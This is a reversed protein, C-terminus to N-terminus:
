EHVTPECLLDNLMKAKRRLVADGEDTSQGMRTEINKLIERLHERAERADKKAKVLRLRTAELEMKLNQHKTKMEKLEAKLENISELKPEPTWPPREIWTAKRLLLATERNVPERTPDGIVKRPESKKNPSPKPPDVRVVLQIPPLIDGITALGRTM